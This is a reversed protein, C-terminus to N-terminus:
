RQNAQATTVPWYVSETHAQQMLATLQRLVTPEAYARNDKEQEDRSLDYLEVPQNVSNRVAKWNKWRVAQKMDPVKSDELHFEWYLSRAPLTTPTAGMLLPLLSVGDTTLPKKYGVLAAFTPMFDWFAVPHTNTIGAKIHNKWSVIMPERMGGEYLDRKIGRLGGSSNFFAADFAPSDPGSAALTAPGNDSTFVILTNDDLNLQTLLKRLDGVQQDLHTVMSAYIKEGQPWTKDAYQPKVALQYKDHPLTTAFFVFFPKSAHGQVFAKLKDFCWDATYTGKQGHRNEPLQVVTENLDLHDTYYDHAHNQDLYGAFEDFGQKNPTGTSGKSGLGWKGFVGTAYGQAKFLEAMTFISDPFSIRTRNPGYNGRIYTHGTHQGTMLSSRSPSCVSTGAYAQTFRMGDRALQDINPTQIQKQGFCGLDGYGMDDALIVIVNPQKDATRLQVAALCATLLLCLLLLKKM